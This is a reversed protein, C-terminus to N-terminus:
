FPQPIGEGMQSRALTDGGGPTHGSLSFVTGEGMKQIRATFIIEFRMRLQSEIAMTFM